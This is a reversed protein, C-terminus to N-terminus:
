RTRGDPKVRVLLENLTFESNLVVWGSCDRALIKDAFGHYIPLRPDHQYVLVTQGCPWPSLFDCLTM